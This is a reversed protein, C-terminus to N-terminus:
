MKLWISFWVRQKLEHRKRQMQSQLFSLRSFLEMCRCYSNSYSNAIPTSYIAWVTQISRKFKLFNLNLIRSKFVLFFYLQIDAHMCTGKKILIFFINSFNAISTPYFALITQVSRKFNLVKAVSKRCKGNVTHKKNSTCINMCFEISNDACACKVKQAARHALMSMEVWGSQHWLVCLSCLTVCFVCFIWFVMFFMSSM